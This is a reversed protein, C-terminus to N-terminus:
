EHFVSIRASLFQGAMLRARRALTSMASVSNRSPEQAAYRSRASLREPPRNPGGAWRAYSTGNGFDAAGPLSPRYPPGARSPM